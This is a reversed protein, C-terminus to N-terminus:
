GLSAATSIRAASSSVNDVRPHFLSSQPASVYFGSNLAIVSYRAIGKFQSSDLKSLMSRSARDFLRDALLSDRTNYPKLTTPEVEREHRYTVGAPHAPLQGSALLKAPQQDIHPLHNAGALTSRDSRGGNALVTSCSAFRTM